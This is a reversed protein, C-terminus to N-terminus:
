RNLAESELAIRYFGRDSRVVRKALVKSRQVAATKVSIDLDDALQQPSTGRARLVFVEHERASLKEIVALATPVTRLAFDASM